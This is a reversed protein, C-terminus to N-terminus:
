AHALLPEELRAAETFVQLWLAGIRQMDYNEAVRAHGAIVHRKRLDDDRLYMDVGRWNDLMACDAFEDYSPIRDAVVAVGHYLCLALRNNSKVSDFEGDAFPIVAISHMRLVRLFTSLNWEFYSTPIHWGQTVQRYTARSNSVVTLTAAHDRACQELTLRVTALHAMGSRSISGAHNGFWILRAAASGRQLRRRQWLRMEYEQWLARLANREWARQDEEVADPIVRSGRDEGVYHVALKQLAHTSFVWLDAAKMMDKLQSALEGGLVFHNDCLDFIVVTGARRLRYALEIDKRRYTKCFVVVSPKERDAIIDADIGTRQLERIVALARIRVSAIKPDAAAVVWRVKM